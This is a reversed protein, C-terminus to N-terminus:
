RSLLLAYLHAPSVACCQSWFAVVLYLGTFEDAAVFDSDPEVNLCKLMLQLRSEKPMGLVNFTKTM